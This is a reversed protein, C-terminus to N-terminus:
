FSRHILHAVNTFGMSEKGYRFLNAPMGDVGGLEVNFSEVSDFRVPGPVLKHTTSSLQSKACYSLPGARQRGFYICM